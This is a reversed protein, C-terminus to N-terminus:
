RKRAIVYVNDCFNIPLALRGLFNGSIFSSIHDFIKYGTSSALIHFAYDLAFWKAPVKEKLIEFGHRELFLRLGRRSFCNIHEPPVLLHWSLGRLRAYLSTADPTIIALVGGPSLMEALLDVDLNPEPMHEIVDWLTIVDFKHGGPLDGPTGTIVSLGKARARESAFPSIEVGSTQWGQARALDLFYGTAAGVDLLNRGSSVGELEELIRTLVGRMAEKDKDYDVYGFGEKGGEFYNQEYLNPEVRPTPLVSLTGCKACKFIDFSNKSGFRRWARTLCAVCTNSKQIEDEM